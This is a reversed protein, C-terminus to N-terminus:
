SDEEASIRLSGEAAEIKLSAQDAILRLLEWLSKDEATFSVRQQLRPEASDDFRCQVKMSAVLTQIVRGAPENRVTMSFTRPDDRLQEILGGAPAAEGGRMGGGGGTDSAALLQRCLWVHAAASATVTQRVGQTEVVSRPDVEALSAFVDRHRPFSYSRRVPKGSPEASVFQGAILEAMLGPDIRKMSVEPWLDHPLSVTEGDGLSQGALQQRLRQMAEDPTTLDPWQLDIPSSRRQVRERDTRNEDVPFFRELLVAVWDARGILVCNELPVCVCDAAAAIRCLSAYRTPGLPGPSVTANPNVQRDIWVNIPETLEGGPSAAIRVAERFGRGDVLGTHSATLRQVDARSHALPPGASVTKARTFLSLWAAALLVM